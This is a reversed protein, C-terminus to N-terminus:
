TLLIVIGLLWLTHADTHRIKSHSSSLRVLSWSVLIVISTREASLFEFFVINWAKAIVYNGLKWISWSNTRDACAGWVPVGGVHALIQTSMEVQSVANFHFRWDDWSAELLLELLQLGLVVEFQLWSFHLEDSFNFPDQGGVSSVDLLGPITETQEFHAVGIQKNSSRILKM